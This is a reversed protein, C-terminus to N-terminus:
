LFLICYKNLWINIHIRLRAFKGLLSSILENIEQQYTGYVGIAAAAAAPVVAGVFPGGVIPTIIDQRKQAQSQLDATRLKSRDEGDLNYTFIFKIDFYFQGNRYIFHFFIYIRSKM